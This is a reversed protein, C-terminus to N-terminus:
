GGPRGPTSGYSSMPSGPTAMAAGLWAYGYCGWDTGWSNVIKFAGGGLYDDYGVVAVAHLGHFSNPDAPPGIPVNCSYSGAWYFEDYVPIGIVFPDDDALWQKLPTLNNNVEPGQPPGTDIFFAGYDIGDYALAASKQTIDPQIVCNYPYWPFVSMPLDGSNVILHLADGITAGADCGPDGPGPAPDEAIQNYVFSPSFIHDYDPGSNELAWGHELWEQYTKYYYSTAWGVCTNTLDQDGVPPMGAASPQGALLSSSETLDVTTPLETISAIQAPVPVVPHRTPDSPVFGM